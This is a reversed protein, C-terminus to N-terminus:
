LWNCIWTDLTTTCEMGKELGKLRQPDEFNIKATFYISSCLFLADTESYETKYEEFQEKVSEINLNPPETTWELIDYKSIISDAEDQNYSSSPLIGNGKLGNAYALTIEKNNFKTFHISLDILLALLTAKGIPETDRVDPNLENSLDYIYQEFKITCTNDIIELLTIKGLDSM